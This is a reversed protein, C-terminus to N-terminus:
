KCGIAKREKLEMLQCIKNKKLSEIEDMIAEMWGSIDHSNIAVQYSSPDGNAIDFAFSISDEFGYGVRLQIPQNPQNLAIKHHEQKSSNPRAKFSKRQTLIMQIWKYWLNRITPKKYMISKM